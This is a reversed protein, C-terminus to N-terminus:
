EITEQQSATRAEYDDQALHQEGQLILLSLFCYFLQRRRTILENKFLLM